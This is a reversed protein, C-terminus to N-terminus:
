DNKFVLRPQTKGEISDKPPECFAKSVYVAYCFINVSTSYPFLAIFFRAKM